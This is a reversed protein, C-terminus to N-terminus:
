GTMRATQGGTMGATKLPFGSSLALVGLRGLGWWRRTASPSFGQIGTQMPIARPSAQYSVRSPFLFPLLILPTRLPSAGPGAMPLLPGPRTAPSAPDPPTLNKAESLIVPRSFHCPPFSLFRRPVIGAEPTSPDPLSTLLM